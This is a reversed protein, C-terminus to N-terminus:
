LPMDDHSPHKAFITIKNKIRAWLSDSNLIIASTFVAATECRAFTLFVFLFFFPISLGPFMGNKRAPALLNTHARSQTKIPSPAQQSTMLTLLHTNM